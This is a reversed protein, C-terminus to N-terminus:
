KLQNRKSEPNKKGIGYKCEECLLTTNYGCDFDDGHSCFVTYGACKPHKESIYNKKNTEIGIV